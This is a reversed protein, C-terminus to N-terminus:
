KGLLHDTKVQAAAPVAAVLCACLAFRVSSIM